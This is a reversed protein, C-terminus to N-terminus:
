FKMKLQIKLLFLIILINFSTKIQFIMKSKDLDGKKIKKGM